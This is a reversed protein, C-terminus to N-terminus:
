ETITKIKEKIRIKRSIMCFGAKTNFKIPKHIGVPKENIMLMKNKLLISVPTKLFSFHIIM